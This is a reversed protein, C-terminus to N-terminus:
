ALFRKFFFFMGFQPTSHRVFLTFHGPFTHLLALSKTLAMTCHVYHSTTLATTSTLIIAELKSEASYQTIWDNFHWEITTSYKSRMANICFILQKCKYIYISHSQKFQISKWAFGFRNTIGMEIHKKESIWIFDYIANLNTLCVFIERTVCILTLDTSTSCCVLFIVYFYITQCWIRKYIKM